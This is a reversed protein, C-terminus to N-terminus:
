AVPLAALASELRKMEGTTVTRFPARCPGCDVGQLALLAKTAPLFGIETIVDIMDNARAQLARAEDLAGDAFRRCLAVFLRGMYNYTSGIAGDAGMALGALLQEDYGNFILTEPLARHVRELQFFNSSTHKLGVFGPSRLLEILTATTFQVGSMDPFNYCIVPLPSAAALQRYHGVIEEVGFKYYFPPISSIAHYGAEAAVEALAIAEGTAIAGVHAILACRGGAAAAVARLMEAREERSQLFAEGTSGGVYFGDIGQALELDVLDAVVEANLRGDARFPTVLAAHLGALRTM